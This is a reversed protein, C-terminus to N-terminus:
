GASYTPGSVAKERRPPQQATVCLPPPPPSLGKWSDFADRVLQDTLQAGREGADVAHGHPYQDAHCMAAELGAGPNLTQGEQGAGIQSPYFSPAPLNTQLPCLKSLPRRNGKEEVAPSFLFFFFSFFFSGFGWHVIVASLSILRVM